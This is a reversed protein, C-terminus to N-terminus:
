AIKEIHNNLLLAKNVFLAIIIWCLMSILEFKYILHGEFIQLFLIGVFYAFLIKFSHDITDRKVRMAIYAIALLLASMLLLGIIGSQYFLQVYFNHLYGNFEGHQTNNGLGTWINGSHAVDELSEKWVRDRGSFFRKGTYQETLANLKTGISTGKAKIYFLTFAQSGVILLAIFPFVFKHLKKVVIYIFVSVIFALMAARSTAVMFLAFLLFLTNYINMIRLIWNSEKFNIICFFLLLFAIIGNSNASQFSMHTIIRPLFLLNMYLFVFIISVPFLIVKTKFTSIFLFILFIIALYIMYAPKPPVGSTVNVIYYVFFLAALVTILLSKKTKIIDRNFILYYILTATLIVIPGILAEKSMFRFPTFQMGMIFLSSFIIGNFAHKVIFNRDQTQM